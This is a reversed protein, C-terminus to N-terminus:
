KRRLIILENPNPIIEWGKSDRLSDLLHLGKEPSCPYYSGTNISMIILNAKEFYPFHFADERNALHPLFNAQACVKEKEDIQTLFTRIEHTNIEAKYHNPDFLNEKKPEFWAMRKQM